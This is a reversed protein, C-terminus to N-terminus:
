ASWILNAIIRAIRTLPKKTTADWFGRSPFGLSILPPAPVLRARAVSLSSESESPGMLGLFFSETFFGAALVITLRLVLNLGLDLLIM